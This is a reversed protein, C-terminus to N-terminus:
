PIILPNIKQCVMYARASVGHTIKVYVARNGHWEVSYQDTQANNGAQIRYVQRSIQLGMGMLQCDPQAFGIAQYGAYNVPYVTVLFVPAAALSFLVLIIIIKNRM